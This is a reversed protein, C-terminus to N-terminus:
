SRKYPRRKRKGKNKELKKLITELIEAAFFIDEVGKNTVKKVLEEAAKYRKGKKNYNGFKFFEFVPVTLAIAIKELTDLTPSRQGREIAGIYNNSLDASEALKAQTLGAIKRLQRIRLGVKETIHM